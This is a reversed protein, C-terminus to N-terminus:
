SRGRSPSSRASCRRARPRVQGESVLLASAATTTDLETDRLLGWGALLGLATLPLQLTAWLATDLGTWEAGLGALFATAGFVCALSADRTTLRTRVRWAVVGAAVAIAILAGPRGFVVYLGVLAVVAAAITLVFARRRTPGRPLEPLGLWRILALTPVLAVGLLGLAVGDFAHQGRAVAIGLVVTAGAWSAAFLRV